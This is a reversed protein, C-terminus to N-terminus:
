PANPSPPVRSNKVWTRKWLCSSSLIVIWRSTSSYARVASSAPSTSSSAERPTSDIVESASSLRGGAASTSRTASASNRAASTAQPPKRSWLAGQQRDCAEVESGSSWSRSSSACSRRCATASDRTTSTSRRCSRRAHRRPRRAAAGGHGRRSVDLGQRTSGTRRGARSRRADRGRRRTGECRRFIWALVRSNEGFGPWLFNGDDDKRFWNVHFLKPLKSPTARAGSTAALARLLRGHPLRLVAADRVPRLAAQRRRGAAAATTESSMISGM